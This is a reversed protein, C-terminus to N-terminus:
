RDLLVLSVVPGSFRPRVRNSADRPSVEADIVGYGVQVVVCCGLGAGLHGMAQLYRGREGLSMGKVDGAISLWRKLYGRAEVGVLGLPASGRALGSRQDFFDTPNTLRAEVEGQFHGAGAALGFHGRERSVLDYQYAGFVYSAEARSDISQPPFTRGGITFSRSPVTRGDASYRFGEVSLRHRRAVKVALRGFFRPERGGLGLDRRLDATTEGSGAQGSAAALWAGTTLEFHHAEFDGAQAVLPAPCVFVVFLAIAPLFSRYGM